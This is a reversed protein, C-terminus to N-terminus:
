ETPNLFDRVRVRNFFERDNTQCLQAWKKNLTASNKIM